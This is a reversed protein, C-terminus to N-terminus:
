PCPSQLVEVLAKDNELHKLLKSERSSGFCDCFVEFCIYSVQPKSTNIIFRIYVYYIIRQPTKKSPFAFREFNIFQLQAM